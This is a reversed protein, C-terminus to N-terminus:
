SKPMWKIQEIDVLNEYLCDIHQAVMDKTLKSYDIKLLERIIDEDFRYKIIRAPVGGVIAYPPVDNTVVSGAAVIAGQFIHVGSMITCGYGIWVDDDVIIDGKGFSEMKEIELMKVKFPFTSIHYKYHEADLLFTTKQAISVYNGLILMHKWNFSVVNLEGYSGKGVIINEMNVMSMLQTDNHQNERRWKRKMKNLRIIQLLETFITHEMKKKWNM